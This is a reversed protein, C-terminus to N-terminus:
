AKVSSPPIIRVLVDSGPNQKPSASRHDTSGTGNCIKFKESAESEHRLNRVTTDM